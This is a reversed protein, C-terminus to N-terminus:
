KQCALIIGAFDIDYYSIHDPIDVDAKYKDSCTKDEATADNCVKFGQKVSGAYFVETPVHIFGWDELPLHPVPDRGHTVRYKAKGAGYVKNFWSSFAKDGVRPSGFNYFEAVERKSAIL